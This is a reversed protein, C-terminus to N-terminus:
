AVEWPAFQVGTKWNRVLVRNRDGDVRDMRCQDPYTMRATRAADEATEFRYPEAAASPKLSRWQGGIAVEITWAAM